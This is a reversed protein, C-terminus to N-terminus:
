FITYYTNINTEIGVRNSSEDTPYIIIEQIYGKLWRIGGWTAINLHTNLYTGAYTNTGGTNGNDFSSMNFGNVIGTLLRQNTSGNAASLNAAYTTGTSPTNTTIFFNRYVGGTTRTDIQQELRTGNTVASQTTAFITDNTETDDNSSVTFFSFNNGIALASIAARSMSHSTGNFKMATTGDKTDLVGASVIRPQNLVVTQTLNLGNGSQDYWTTIFGNGNTGAVTKEYTRVSSSQTLQFGWVYAGSTGNGLYTTTSGNNLFVRIANASTTRSTITVSFRYWGNAEATVVPTNTFGNNSINGNTLDVDCTQSSGSINSFIQVKTREGQKLYVSVNYSTSNVLTATRGVYHTTNNTDEIIKDGTLTGDPATEVNVYPPTGTINLNQKTWVSQSIDESYSWLNYGIFSLLSSTDLEGGIFGFNQETNDSSRRVRIANGTYATRLKRLSYAVAANPYDDLLLRKSHFYPNIIM